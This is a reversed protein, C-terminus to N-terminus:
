HIVLPLCPTPRETTFLDSTITGGMLKAKDMLRLSITPDSRSVKFGSSILDKHRLVVHLAKRLYMLERIGLLFDRRQVAYIQRKSGIGM